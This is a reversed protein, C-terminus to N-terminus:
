EFKKTRNEVFLLDTTKETISPIPEFPKDVLLKSTDQKEFEKNLVPNTKAKNETLVKNFLVYALTLASFIILSTLFVGFIIKDTQGSDIFKKFIIFILMSIGVLLVTALGGVAINGFGELLKTHKLLNASEDTPFQEILTEATKELNMGCARCFKQDTSNKAGCNPCFM